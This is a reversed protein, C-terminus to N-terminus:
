IRGPIDTVQKKERKLEEERKEQEKGRPSNGQEYILVSIFPNEGSRSSKLYAAESRM